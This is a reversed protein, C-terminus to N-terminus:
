ASPGPLERMSTIGLSADPWGPKVGDLILGAGYFTPMVMRRPGTRDLLHRCAETPDTAVCDCDSVMCQIASAMCEMSMAASGNDISTLLSDTFEPFRATWLGGDIWIHPGFDPTTELLAGQIVGYAGAATEHNWTVPAGHLSPLGYQLDELSFYAGNLNAEEARVLRGHFGTMLANQTPAAATEITAPSISATIVETMLPHVEPKAGAPLVRRARATALIKVLAPDQMLRRRIQERREYTSM